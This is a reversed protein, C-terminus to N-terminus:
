SRSRDVGYYLQLQIQPQGDAGMCGLVSWLRGDRKAMSAILTHLPIKGPELRNPHGSRALFLRERNQLVVGTSGAVVCSGFAGYLSQILSVANGDRDVAALYVTDGALSGFSPM